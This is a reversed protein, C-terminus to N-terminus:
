QFFRRCGSIIGIVKPTTGFLYPFFGYARLSVRCDRELRRVAEVWTLAYFLHRQPRVLRNLSGM